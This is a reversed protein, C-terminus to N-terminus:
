LNQIHIKLENIVGVVSSESNVITILRHEKEGHHQCFIELKKQFAKLKLIETSLHWATLNFIKPDPHYINARPQVLLDERPPLRIPIDILMQLLDTYWHRRPWQPAIFIIQCQFQKMHSLTKPILCIPFYAYAIM